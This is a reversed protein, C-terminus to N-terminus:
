RGSRSSRDREHLLRATQESVPAALLATVLDVLRSTFLRDDRRPRAAARAALEAHCFRMATFRTHFVATSEPALLPELLRRWPYISSGKTVVVEVLPEPRNLLEAVIQLFERGGDPDALKAAAPLVLAVALPRLEVAGSGSGSGDDGDGGVGDEYQQLLVERRADVAPLHKDLVARLLGARDGFHYQLAMANRQGAARKIENLSAGDVGKAAFLREAARILTGRTDGANRSRPATAQTEHATM